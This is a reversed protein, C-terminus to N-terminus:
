TDTHTPLTFNLCSHPVSTWRYSPSRVCTILNAYFSPDLTMIIGCSNPWSSPAHTLNNPLYMALDNLPCKTYDNPLFIHLSWLSSKHIFDNPLFTAHDKHICHLTILFVHTFGNRLYIPLTMLFIWPYPLSSHILYFLCSLIAIAAYPIKM